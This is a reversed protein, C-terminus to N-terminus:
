YGPNQILKPSENIRATPIEKYYWRPQFTFIHLREDLRDDFFWKNENMIFFPNLTRYVTNNQERDIVRWRKMDFWTKNEFALEKRREKRVLDITLDTEAPIIDAGAREQIQKICNYADTRYAEGQGLLFLEFAAEAQNLLVEGYRLEIWSQDSRGEVTLAPPMNPNMWKRLGFGSLNCALQGQDAFIGSAGTANYTSGSADTVTEVATFDNSMAIVTRDGYVTQYKERAGEPMLRTIGAGIPPKYVGRYLEFVEGKFVDGPFIVTARLRPEANAFFDMPNDYIKYYGNQDYVDVQGNAKKPLGDFMEAFSLNPNCITGWTTPRYQLQLNYIDHSHVSNPYGYERIFINETSSADFFMDVFNKYQAERDTASWANKYLAYDSSELLKAADYSLKFFSQAKDAPIGCVRKHTNPDTLEITNYTAISGAFLMARSKFGMATYKNARTAHTKEPLLRYAEDFDAAIQNYVEEESARSIDYDDLRDADYVLLETVLPVGGYRKVMAFYIMARIFYCEGIWQNIQDDSYGATVKYSPLEDMFFHIDRLASYADSWYTHTETAAARVDRCTSEGTLSWFTPSGTRNFGNGHTFRFDEIPLTGYFRALFINIGSENSFLDADTVVNVPLVDLEICSPMFCVFTIIILFYKFTKM